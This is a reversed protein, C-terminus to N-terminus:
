FQRVARVSFSNRKYFSGYGIYPSEVQDGNDFNQFWAATDSWRNAQSSSWYWTGSPFNGLGRRRLNVYILNLEERSPLFWDTYGNQIYQQALEAARGTEGTQRLHNVIIQTNQKGTGLATSTGIINQGYAGWEASISINQSAAEMYRWGDIYRGRDYFVIGGAPGTQGVTYEGGLSVRTIGQTNITISRTEEHDAFVMKVEYVGPGEIPITYIEYDWLTAIRENQFYLTGGSRATVEIAIVTPSTQTTTPTPVVPAPTVAPTSVTPAVATVGTSGASPMAVSSDYGTARSNVLATVTPGDPINRNFQGTIQASEVSLARIRLRYLDGIRSIAGSIIIQAGAMRGLSQATNDDVEGSMQFDLEARITNLQQRDVVSFVRDNVTNAILEDIIYESLAPYESQINLIVLKNGRPLQQNLYDSTERIAADLEDQPSVAQNSVSAPVGGCTTFILCLLAARIFTSFIRKM